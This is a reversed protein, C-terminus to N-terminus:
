KGGGEDRRYYYTAAALRFAVWMRSDMYLFLALILLYSYIIRLIYKYFSHVSTETFHSAIYNFYLTIICVGSIKTFTM